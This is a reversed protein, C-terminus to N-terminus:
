RPLQAVLHRASRLRDAPTPYRRTFWAVLADFDEVEHETWPATARAAFEEPSLAREEWADLEARLTGPLALAATM